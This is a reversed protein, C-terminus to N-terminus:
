GSSPLVKTKLSNHSDNRNFSLILDTKLKINRHSVVRSSEVSFHRLSRLGELKLTRYEVVVNVVSLKKAFYTM